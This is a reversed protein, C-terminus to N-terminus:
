VSSAIALFGIWKEFVDASLDPAFVIDGVRTGAITVPYAAGIEPLGLLNVFWAPVRGLPTPVELPSHVVPTTGTRAFRIAESTGLSQVFADLTQEPNASTKLASNLADAVARASRAPPEIEEVLQVPAFIQLSAGGLVLAAAFMMGLPLLLRTRLSLKQWM